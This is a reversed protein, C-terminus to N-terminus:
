LDVKDLILESWTELNDLYYVGDTFEVELTDTETIHIESENVTAIYVVGFHVEGVANTDDNVFGILTLDADVGLEEKLERKANETLLPYESLGEHPNMHGGVGISIRSHLRSEGGGKLRKYTLIDGNENKVIIYSILQKYRPDIEMDGRRKVEIYKLTNSFEKFESFHKFGYFDEKLLKERPIVLIQEENKNMNKVREDPITTTNCAGDM